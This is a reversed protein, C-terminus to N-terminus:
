AHEQNLGTSLIGWLLSFILHLVTLLAAAGHKSGDPRTHLARPTPADQPRVGRRLALNSLDSILSNFLQPGYFLFILKCESEQTLASGPVEQPDRRCFWVLFLLAPSPALFIITGEM